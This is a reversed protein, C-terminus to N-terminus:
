LGPTVSGGGDARVIRGPHRPLDDEANQKAPVDDDVRLGRPEDAGSDQGRELCIRRGPRRAPASTRV